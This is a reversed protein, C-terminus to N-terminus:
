VSSTTPMITTSVVRRIWCRLATREPMGAPRHDEFARAEPAEPRAATHGVSSIQRPRQRGRRARTGNSV